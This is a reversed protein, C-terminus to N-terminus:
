LAMELRFEGSAAVGLCDLHRPFCALRLLEKWAIIAQRCQVKIAAVHWLGLTVKSQCLIDAGAVPKIGVPQDYQWKKILAHDPFTPVPKGFLDHKFLSRTFNYSHPLDIM